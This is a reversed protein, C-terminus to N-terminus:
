RHQTFCYLSGSVSIPSVESFVNMCIVSFRPKPTEEFGAMFNGSTLVLNRDTELLDACAFSGPSQPISYRSIVKGNRPDLTFLVGNASVFIKQKGVAYAFTRCITSGIVDPARAEFDPIDTPLIFEWAPAPSGAPQGYLHDVFKHKEQAYKRFILVDHWHALNYAGDPLTLIWMLDWTRRDFFFIRNTGCNWWPLRAVGYSIWGNSLILEAREDLVSGQSGSHSRATQPDDDPFIFRRMDFPTVAKGSQSDFFAVVTNSQDIGAGIPYLFVVIKGPYSECRYPRLARAFPVSWAIKGTRPDMRTLSVQIDPPIVQAQVFASSIISVIWFVLAYKLTITCRFRNFPSLALAQADTLKCTHSTLPKM